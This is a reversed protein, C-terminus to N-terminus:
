GCKCNQLLTEATEAIKEASHGYKAMVEAPTGSEGFKDQMGVRLVPCPHTEGVIEAVAGGLGGIVQHEEATVIGATESAAAIIADRDIPKISAMNLVRADIGKAALSEAAELALCVMSGCAIISVDNGDRLTIAKGLEFSYDDPCVAPLNSRGLRLYAPGDMNEVLYEMCSKTEIADAPVIVRMHPLVRFIAIDENAQASAGDEGVSCGAHTLALVVPLKARAITNRIQEWGRSAFIAFSSAFPLKGCTALGAATCVLDCEAIGIQFFREPFKKAFHVTMTSKSLDADLAVIHPYKGGLEALTEGYAARTAVKEAM